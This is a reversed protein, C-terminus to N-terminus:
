VCTDNLPTRIIGKMGYLRVLSLDWKKEREVRVLTGEYKKM